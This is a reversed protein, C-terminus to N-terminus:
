EVDVRIAGGLRSYFYVAQGSPDPQIGQIGINNFPDGLALWAAHFTDCGYAASDTGAFYVGGAYPLAAVARVAQGPLGFAAWTNGGDTSRYVGSDTGALFVAPDLADQVLSYVMRGPLGPQTSQWSQGSDYSVLVGESGAAALVHGPDAQDFLIASVSGSTLSTSLWSSGNLRYIGRGTPAALVVGSDWPSVAVAAAPASASAAATSGALEAERIEESELLDDRQPLPRNGLPAFAPQSGGPAAAPSDLAPSPFGSSLAGWHQGGDTSRYIGTDGTAAYLTSPSAPDAALALINISGLGNSASAWSQGGNNSAYVGSGYLAAYLGNPDLPSLALGSVSYGSLGQASRNWSLGGDTSRYPGDFDVAVYRNIGDRAFAVPGSADIRAATRWGNARDGSRMLYGTVNDVLIGAFLAGPRYPDPSLSGYLVDWGGGGVPEWNEGGDNSRHMGLKKMAGFYLINHDFPDIAIARGAYPPGAVPRWNNGYETTRYLGHEHLAAYVLGPRTPDVALDYVYLDEYPLGANVPNWSAGGNDSRFVGGGGLSGDPLFKMRTGAYVRNSNTPAIALAYVVPRNYRAGHWVTAMEGTPHWTAGGDTSKFVGSYPVDSSGYTGVYIINPNTPDVAISQLTLYSIGLSTPFWSAGLDTSKYVGSGYTIAYLSSPNNGDAAVGLVRSLDPGIRRASFAVGRAIIPFYAIYPPTGQARAPLFLLLLLFLLPIRKM